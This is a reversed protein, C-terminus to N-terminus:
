VKIGIQNLTQIKSGFIIIIWSAHACPSVVLPADELPLVRAHQDVAASSPAAWRVSCLCHLRLPENRIKIFYSGDLHQSAVYLM